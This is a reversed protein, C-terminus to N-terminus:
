DQPGTHDGAYDLGTASATVASANFEDFASEPTSGDSTTSGEIAYTDSDDECSSLMPLMGLLIFLLLMPRHM